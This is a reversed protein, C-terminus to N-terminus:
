KTPDIFLIELETAYSPPRLKSEVRRYDLLIRDLTRQQKYEYGRKMVRDRKWEPGLCQLFQQDLDDVIRRANSENDPLGRQKCSYKAHTGDSSTVCSTLPGFTVAGRWEGFAFDFPQTRVPKFHQTITGLVKKLGSCFAEANAAQCVLLCAGAALGSLLRSFSM